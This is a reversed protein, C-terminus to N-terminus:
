EMKCFEKVVAIKRPPQGQQIKIYNNNGNPPLTKLIDKIPLLIEITYVIM